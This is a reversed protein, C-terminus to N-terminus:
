GPRTTNASQDAPPVATQDMDTVPTAPLTSSRQGIRRTQDKVRVRTRALYELRNRVGEIMNMDERANWSYIVCTRAVKDHWTQRRNDVLVWFFGLFLALGSVLMMFYRILARGITLRKGDLRVIRVGLVWKGITYGGTFVWLVVFYGIVFLTTSTAFTLGILVGVFRTNATLQQILASLGFFDLFTNVAAVTVAVTASIIVIDLLLALGRSVVGAYQGLLNPSRQIM